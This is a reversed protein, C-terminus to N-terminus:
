GSRTKKLNANKGLAAFNRVLRKKCGPITVKILFFFRLHDLFSFLCKYGRSNRPKAANRMTADAGGM